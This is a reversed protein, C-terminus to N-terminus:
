SSQLTPMTPGSMRTHMFRRNSYGVDKQRGLIMRCVVSAAEVVPVSFQTINNHLVIYQRDVSWSNITGTSQAIQLLEILPKKSFTRNQQM